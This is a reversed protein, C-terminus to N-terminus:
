ATIALQERGKKQIDL